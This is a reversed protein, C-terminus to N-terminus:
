IKLTKNKVVNEVSLQQGLIQKEYQSKQTEYFQGNKSLDIAHYGESKNSLEVYTNIAANVYFDLFDMSDSDGILTIKFNPETLNETLCKYNEVFDIKDLSYSISRIMKSVSNELKGALISKNINIVLASCKKYSIFDLDDFSILTFHKQYDQTKLNNKKMYNWLSVQLELKEQFPKTKLYHSIITFKDTKGEFLNLANILTEASMVNIIRKNCVYELCLQKNFSLGSLVSEDTEYKSKKSLLLPLVLQKENKSALFKLFPYLDSFVVSNKGADLFQELYYDNQEIGKTNKKIYVYSSFAEKTIILKNTSLYEKLLQTLIENKKKNM